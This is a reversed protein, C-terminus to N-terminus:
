FIFESPIYEKLNCNFWDVALKSDVPITRGIEERLASEFADSRNLCYRRMYYATKKKINEPVNFYIQEM